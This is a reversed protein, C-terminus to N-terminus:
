EENKLRAFIYSDILQGNKKVHKKLLGEQRFGSKEMVKKSGENTVFVSATIKELLMQDFAYSCLVTVANTMIGQGWYKDSLWYGLEAKNDRGFVMGDFGVSGLLTGNPDRIAFTVPRQNSSTEKIKENIWWEADEKTYPYPIALTNDSIAKCRMHEVYSERDYISFETLCFNNRLPILFRSTM